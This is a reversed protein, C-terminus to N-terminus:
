INLIFILQNRILITGHEINAKFEQDEKTTCTQKFLHWDGTLFFVGPHITPHNIAIPM